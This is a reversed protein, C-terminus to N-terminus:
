MSMSLAMPLAEPMWRLKACGANRGVEVGQQRAAPWYTVDVSAKAEQACGTNCPGLNVCPARNGHKHTSIASYSPWWHWGLDNFGAAM